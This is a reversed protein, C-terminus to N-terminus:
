RLREFVESLNRLHEGFTRGIVLIDDLYVICRERALGALVTEM